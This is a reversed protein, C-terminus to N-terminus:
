YTMTLQVTGTYSGPTVPIATSVYQAVLSLPVTPTLPLLDGSKVFTTGDSRTIAIGANTASAAATTNPVTNATSPAAGGAATLYIVELNNPKTTGCSSVTFTLVKSDGALTGATSFSETGIPDFSITTANTNSMGAGNLALQCTSQVVSGTFQITGDVAFAAQGSSLLICLLGSVKLKKM